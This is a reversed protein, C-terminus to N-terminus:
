VNLNTPFHTIQTPPLILKRKRLTVFSNRRGQMIMQSPIPISLTIKRSSTAPFLIKKLEEIDPREDPNNNICMQIVQGYKDITLADNYVANWFDSFSTVKRPFDKRIIYYITMGLSWVDAKFPNYHKKNMIEPAMFAYTGCFHCYTKDCEVIESLGFDIIKARNYGDILINQPKIDLHAVGAKHLVLLGDIVDSILQDLARRDFTCHNQLILLVNTPCYELILYFNLADEFYDYLNVVNPSHIEALIAVEKKFMQEQKLYGVKSNKVLIKVVFTQNYKANKVRYCTSTLGYGVEDILAYGKSELTKMIQQEQNM